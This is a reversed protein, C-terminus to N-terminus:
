LELRLSGDGYITTYQYRERLADDDWVENIPSRYNFLLTKEPRGHLVVRAVGEPSPHRFIKSNTSFLYRSCDLSGLLEPSTSGKSGHHSLKLADIKLQREGREAALVVAMREVQAPFADGALLCSRGEYCALLAISSGNAPSADPLFPHRDLEEADARQCGLLDVPLKERRLLEAWADEHSGEQMGAARVEKEWIPRLKALAAPSPSLVRLRMGGALRVEPPVGSDVTVACGGFHGNWPLGRCRIIASVMEGQVAGLEDTKPFHQWANFWVDDFTVGPPLNTLLRLIGGIHDFDMHTIVLLDFHCGDAPLRAALQEYAYTPGGDILVRHIDDPPGYEIWLCDGHNAPLMEVAFTM